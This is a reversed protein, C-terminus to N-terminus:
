HRWNIGVSQSDGMAPLAGWRTSQRPNEYGSRIDNTLKQYGNTM